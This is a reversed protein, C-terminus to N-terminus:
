THKRVFNAASDAHSFTRAAQAITQMEEESFKSPYLRLPYDSGYVTKGFTHTASGM